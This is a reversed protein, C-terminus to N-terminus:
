HNNYNCNLFCLNLSSIQKSNQLWQRRRPVHTRTRASERERVSERLVCRNREHRDQTRPQVDQPRLDECIPQRTPQNLLLILLLSYWYSWLLHRLLLKLSSAFTQKINRIWCSNYILATAALAHASSVRLLKSLNNQIYATTTSHM